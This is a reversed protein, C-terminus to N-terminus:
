LPEIPMHLDLSSFFGKSLSIISPTGLLGKFTLYFNHRNQRPTLSAYLLCLFYGLVLCPPLLFCCLTESFSIIGTMKLVPQMLLLQSVHMVALSLSLSCLNSFALSFLRSM